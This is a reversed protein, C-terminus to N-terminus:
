LAKEVDLDKEFGICSGFSVTVYRLLLSVNAMKDIKDNLAQLKSQLVGLMQMQLYQLDEGLSNAVEVNRLVLIQRQIRLWLAKLALLLEIINIEADQFSHCLTVLKKGYRGIDAYVLSCSM